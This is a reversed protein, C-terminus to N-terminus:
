ILTIFILSGLGAIIVISRLTFFYLKWLFIVGSCSTTDFKINAYGGNVKAWAKELFLGWVVKNNSRAGIPEKTGKKVPIKDDLLVIKWEGDIKM